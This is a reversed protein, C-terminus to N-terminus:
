QIYIIKHDWSIRYKFKNTKHIVDIIEEASNKSNFKGTYIIDLAQTNQVIFKVDYYLELKKIIESFPEMDFTLVGEKWSSYSDSDVTKKELRDDVFRVKENPILQVKEGGNVKSVEVSGNILTTEFVTMESYNLVNFETGLAKVDYRSTKVVFPKDEDKAVNFYAEGDLYVNRQKRNFSQPIKIKSRSNLWVTSGDSLTLFARQGVPVEIENYSIENKSSYYNTVLVGSLIIIAVSAAYKAFQRIFLSRKYRKVKTYFQNLKEIALEKNENSKSFCILGKLNQMKVFEAKLEIDKEIESFLIQKEKQTIEGSFYKELLNLM